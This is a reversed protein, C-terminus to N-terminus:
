VELVFILMELFFVEYYMFMNFYDFVLYKDEFKEYKNLESYVCFQGWVM